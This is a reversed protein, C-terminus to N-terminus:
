RWRRRRVALGLAGAAALAMSSAEPVATVLLNDIRMNHIATTPNKPGGNFVFRLELNSQNEIADIGSLDISPVDNQWTSQLQWTPMGTTPISIWEGSNIRYDVTSFGTPAGTAGGSHNSRVDFGIVLDTLGTTNLGLIFGAGALDTEAASGWQISNGPAATGGGEWVLGTNPDTATAGGAGAAGVTGSGTGRIATFTPTGAFGTNSTFSGGGLVASTPGNYTNGSQTTQFSWFVSAAEASSFAAACALTLLFPKSM